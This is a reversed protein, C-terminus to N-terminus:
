QCPYRYGDSALYTGTRPDFTRYQSACYNVWNPDAGYINGVPTGPGAGYYGYGYAPQSNAIAGAALAGVALGGIVGAAVAGGGYGRRRGYYRGGYYRRGYQAYSEGPYAAPAASSIAKGTAPAEAASAPAFCAVLLSAGLAGTTLIKRASKTM